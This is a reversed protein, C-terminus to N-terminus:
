ASTRNLRGCEPCPSDPPLGVLDYHCKRCLGRPPHFRRSTAILGGIGLLTFPWFPLGLYSPDSNLSFSPFYLGFNSIPNRRRWYWENVSFPSRYKISWRGNTNVTWTPGLGSQFDPWVREGLVNSNRPISSDNWPMSPGDWYCAIFGADFRLTIREGLYTGSYVLASVFWLVGSVGLTWWSWRRLRARTIRLRSPM